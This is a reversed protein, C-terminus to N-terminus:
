LINSLMKATKELFILDKKDFAKLLDSDIDIEGIIKNNKKIPVVIESKTSLFCSLYRKDKSVDPVVITKGTQAAAGCIGKGIPIINHETANKGKWHSLVLKNGHLLYIGIWSYKKFNDYLYKVIKELVADPDYSELMKQIEREAKEYNVDM